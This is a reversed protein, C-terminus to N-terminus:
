NTHSHVLLLSVDAYLLLDRLYLVIGNVQGIDITEQVALSDSSASVMESECYCLRAFSDHSADCPSSAPSNHYTICYGGMMAGPLFPYDAPHLGHFRLDIKEGCTFGADIFAVDTTQATQKSMSM